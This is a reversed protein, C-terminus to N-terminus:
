FCQHFCRGLAQRIQVPHATERGDRHQLAMDEMRKQAVVQAAAACIQGRLKHTAHRWGNKEEQQADREREPHIALLTLACGRRATEFRRQFARALDEGQRERKPQLHPNDRDVLTRPGIQQADVHQIRHPERQQAERRHRQEARRLSNAEACQQPNQDRSCPRQNGPEVPIVHWRQHLMIQRRIRKVEPKKRPRSKYREAHARAAQQTMEVSTLSASRHQPQAASSHCDSKGRPEERVQRIRNIRM